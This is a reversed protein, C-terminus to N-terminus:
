GNGIIEDLSFGERLLNQPKIIELLKGEPLFSFKRNAEIISMNEKKMERALQASKDYGIYPLLASTISPSKAIVEFSDESTLKIGSVLNEKITRNCAILLKISEIM